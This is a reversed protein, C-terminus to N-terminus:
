AHHRPISRLGRDILDLDGEGGVRPLAASVLAFLSFLVGLGILDM